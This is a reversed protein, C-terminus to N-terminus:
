GGVTITGRMESHFRCTYPFEGAAEFTREYPAGTELTGSDEGDTFTVTHPARGTNAWVVTEGVAIEVDAPDYANDVIAVAHGGSTPASAAPSQGVSAAASPATSAAPGGCASLAVLLASAIAISSIPRV